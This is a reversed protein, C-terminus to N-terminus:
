VTEMDGTSMRSRRVGRFLHRPRPLMDVLCDRIGQRVVRAPRRVVLRVDGDARRCPPLTRCRSTSGRSQGVVCSLGGSRDQLHAARDGFFSGRSVRWHSCPLFSSLTSSSASQAAVWVTDGECRNRTRSVLLTGAPAIDRSARRIGNLQDRDTGGAVQSVVGRSAVRSERSHSAGSRVSRPQAM